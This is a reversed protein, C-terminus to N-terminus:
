VVSKRDTSPAESRLRALCYGAGFAGVAITALIQLPLPVFLPLSVHLLKPLWGPSSGVLLATAPTLLFLLWFMVRLRTREGPLPEVEIEAPEPASVEGPVYFLHDCSPCRALASDAPPLPTQCQPCIERPPTM